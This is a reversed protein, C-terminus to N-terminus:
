STPQILAKANVRVKCGLFSGRSRGGFGLRSGRVVKQGDRTHFSCGLDMLPVIQSEFVRVVGLAALDVCDFDTRDSSLFCILFCVQHIVHIDKTQERPTSGINLSQDVSAFSTVRDQARVTGFDLFV